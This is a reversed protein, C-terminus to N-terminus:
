TATIFDNVDVGVKFGYDNKPADLTDLLCDHFTQHSDQNINQLKM